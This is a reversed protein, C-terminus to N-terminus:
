TQAGARRISHGPVQVPAPSQVIVGVREDLLLSPFSLPILERSLINLHLFTFRTTRPRVKKDLNSTIFATTSSQSAADRGEGRWVAVLQEAQQSAFMQGYLQSATLWVWCHPYRLHAEIHGACMSPSFATKIWNGPIPSRIYTFCCNHTHTHTVGSTLSHTTLNASSWCAATNASNPSSLWIVSCCGTQEKRM